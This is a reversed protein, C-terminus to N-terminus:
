ADFLAILMGLAVPLDFSPLMSPPLDLKSIPYFLM